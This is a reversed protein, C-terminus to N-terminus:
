EKRFYAELWDLFREWGGAHEYAPQVAGFDEQRVTVRTGGEIVDLLYTVKTVRRGLIPYDFDYRRTQAIRRPEQIELFEGDAPLRTGDPLVTTLSWLGGVRVDAAWDRTQYVEPSGWWTETEKTTLARFVRDPPAAVLVMALVIEGDTVAKSKSEIKLLNPKTQQTM